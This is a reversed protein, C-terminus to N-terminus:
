DEDQKDKSYSYKQHLDTIKLILEDTTAQLREIRAIRKKLAFLCGSSILLVCINAYFFIPSELIMM